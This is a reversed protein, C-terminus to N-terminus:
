QNVRPSILFFDEIALDKQWFSEREPLPHGIIIPRLEYSQFFVFFTIIQYLKEILLSPKIINNCKGPSSPWSCKTSFFAELIYAQYHKYHLFDEINLYLFENLVKIRSKTMKSMVKLYSALGIYNQAVFTTCIINFFIKRNEFLMCSWTLLKSHFM